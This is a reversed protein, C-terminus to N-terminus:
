RHPLEINSGETLLRNSSHILCFGTSFFVAAVLIKRVRGRQIESWCAKERRREDSRISRDLPTHKAIRKSKPIARQEEATLQAFRASQLQCCHCVRVFASM